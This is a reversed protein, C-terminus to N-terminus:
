RALSRRWSSTRIDAWDSSMVRGSVNPVRCHTLAIIVEVGHEERLEKSIERATEAMPRYRFEEPWSPITAIWDEEVLGIVGIKVGRKKTIWYRNLPEPVM